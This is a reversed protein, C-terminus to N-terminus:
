NYTDKCLLNSKYISLLRKQLKIELKDTRDYTESPGILQFKFTGLYDFSIKFTGPNM